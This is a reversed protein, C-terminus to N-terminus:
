APLGRMKIDKHRSPKTAWKRQKMKEGPKEPKTQMLNKLNQRDPKKDRQGHM